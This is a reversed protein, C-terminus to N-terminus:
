IRNEHSGAAGAAVERLEGSCTLNRSENVKLGTPELGYAAVLLLCRDTQEIRCRCRSSARASQSMAASDVAQEGSHLDGVLARHHLLVSEMRHCPARRGARVNVRPPM